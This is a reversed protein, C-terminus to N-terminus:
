IQKNGLNPNKKKISFFLQIITKFTVLVKNLIQQKNCLNILKIWKIQSFVQMKLYLSYDISSYIYIINYFIYLFM